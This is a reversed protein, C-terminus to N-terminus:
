WNLPSITKKIPAKEFMKEEIPKSEDDIYKSVKAKLSATSETVEKVLFNVHAKQLTEMTIDLTKENWIANKKKTDSIIIENTSKKLFIYLYTDTSHQCKTEFQTKSVRHIGWVYVANSFQYNHRNWMFIRVVGVDASVTKSELNLTKFGQQVAEFANKVTMEEQVKELFFYPIHSTHGNVSFEVYYPYAAPTSSVTGIIGLNHERFSNNHFGYLTFLDKKLRGVVKFLTKNRGGNQNMWEANTLPFDKLSIVDESHAYYDGESTNTSFVLCTNAKSHYYLIQNNYKIRVPDGYKMNHEKVWECDQDYLVSM